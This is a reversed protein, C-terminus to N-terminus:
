LTKALELLALDSGPAGILSLGVPGGDAMGVPVTVQPAGAIGAYATFDLIRARFADFDTVPASLTGLLDEIQNPKLM